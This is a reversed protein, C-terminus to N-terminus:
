KSVSKSGCCVVFWCCHCTSESVQINQQIRAPTVSKPISTIRRQYLWRLIVQAPTKSLRGAISKLCEDDLISVKEDEAIRCWCCVHRQTPMCSFSGDFAVVVFPEMLVPASGWLDSTKLYIENMIVHLIKSYLSSHFVLLITKWSYPFCWWGAQCIKSSSHRFVFLKVIRM